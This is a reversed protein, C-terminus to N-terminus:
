LHMSNMNTLRFHNYLFPKSYYVKMDCSFLEVEEGRERVSDPLATTYLVEFLRPSFGFPGQNSMILQHITGVSLIAM